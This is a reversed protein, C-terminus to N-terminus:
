LGLKHNLDSRNVRTEYYIKGNKSMRKGPSLASRKKDKILSKNPVNTVYNAKKLVKPSKLRSKRKNKLKMTSKRKVSSKSIKRIKKIFVM